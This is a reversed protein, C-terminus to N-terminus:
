GAPLFGKGKTVCSSLQSSTGIYPSMAPSSIRQLPSGLQINYSNTNYQEIARGSQTQFGEGHKIYRMSQQYSPSSYVIGTGFTKKPVRKVRMAGNRARRLGQGSTTLNMEISELKNTGYDYILDKAKPYQGALAKQAVDKEVGTLNSDIYDDVYEIALDKATAKADKGAVKLGKMLNEDNIARNAGKIVASEIIEGAKPNGTYEAVTEGLVKAGTKAVMKGLHKAEKSKLVKKVKRGIKRIGYGRRTSVKQIQDSAVKGAVAGALAGSPGGVVGGIGSLATPLLVDTGVNIMEKAIEKGVGSDVITKKFGKKVHKGLHKIGKKLSIKGGDMLDEEPTLNLRMGKKRRQASNLKRSTKPMVNVFHSGTPSNIQHNKLSITGGNLLKRVQTGSLQICHTASM